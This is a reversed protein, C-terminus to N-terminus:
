FLKIQYMKFYLKKNICRSMFEIIQNNLVKMKITKAQKYTNKHRMKTCDIQYRLLLIKPNKTSKDLM